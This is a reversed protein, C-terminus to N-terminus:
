WGGEKLCIVVVLIVNDGGQGSSWVEHRRCGARGLLETNHVSETRGSHPPSLLPHTADLVVASCPLLRQTPGGHDPDWQSLGALGTPPAAQGEISGTVGQAYLAGM